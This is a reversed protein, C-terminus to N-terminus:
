DGRRDEVDIDVVEDVTPTFPVDPKRVPRREQSFGYNFTAMVIAIM